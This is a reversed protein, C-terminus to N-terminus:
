TPHAFPETKIPLFVAWSQRNKRMHASTQCRSTIMTHLHLSDSYGCARTAPQRTTHINATRVRERKEGGAAAAWEFGGHVDDVGGLLDRLGARMQVLHSTLDSVLTGLGAGLLVQQGVQLADREVSVLEVDGGLYASGPAHGRCGAPAISAAALAPDSARWPVIRAM